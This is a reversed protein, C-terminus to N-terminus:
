RPPPLQHNSLFEKPILQSERSYIYTYWQLCNILYKADM